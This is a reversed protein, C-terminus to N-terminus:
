NSHLDLVRKSLFGANIMATNWFEAVHARTPLKGSNFQFNIISTFSWSPWRKHAEARLVHELAEVNRERDDGVYKYGGRGVKRCWMWLDCRTHNDSGNNNMSISNANLRPVPRPFTLTVRKAPLAVTQPKFGARPNHAPRKAADVYDSSAITTM